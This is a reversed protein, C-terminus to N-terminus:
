ISGIYQMEALKGSKSTHLLGKPRTLDIEEPEVWNQDMLDVATFFVTQRDRRHTAGGVILGSQIVSHLNFVSGVHHIFEFFYDPILVTDLLFPDVSNEGSHGQIARLHLIEQGLSDTFFQFRKKHGGGTELYKLWLQVSWHPSQSFSSTFEAKLRRFEVAGDKERALTGHRFLAIMKKSITFSQADKQSHQKPEVDRWNRQHILIHIPSHSSSPASTPKLKTKPALKQAEVRSSSVSRTEQM